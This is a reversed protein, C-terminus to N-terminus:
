EYHTWMRLVRVTREAEFVQYILRHQYNIRRSYLGALDGRLKECSPPSRYPDEELIRILALAKGKLGAAAVKESDKVAQRSYLVRWRM